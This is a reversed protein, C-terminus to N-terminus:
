IKILSQNGDVGCFSKINDKDEKRTFNIIARFRRTSFRQKSHIDNIFPEPVLHSKLEDNEVSLVIGDICIVTPNECCYFSEEPYYILDLYHVLM